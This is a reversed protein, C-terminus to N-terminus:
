ESSKKIETWGNVNFAYLVATNTLATSGYPINTPLKTIDTDGMLSLTGEPNINCYWDGYINWETEPHLQNDALKKYM